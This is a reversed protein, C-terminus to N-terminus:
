SKFIIIIVIGIFALGIGILENRLLREKLFFYGLIIAWIPATSGFMATLSGSTHNLSVFWILSSFTILSGAAIIKYYHITNNIIEIKQSFVISALFLTTIGVIARILSGSLISGEILAKDNFFVALGWLSGALVGGLVGVILNVQISKLNRLNIVLISSLILLCGVLVMNSHKVSNLTYDLILAMLVNSSACITFVISISTRQISIIYFVAGICSVFSAIFFFKVTNLNENLISDWERFLTIILSIIVFSVLSEFFPFSFVKNLKITKLITGSLAWTMASILAAFQFFSEM